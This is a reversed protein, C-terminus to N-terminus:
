DFEAFSRLLRGAPLRPSPALASGTRKPAEWNLAQVPVGRNGQHRSLVQQWERVCVPIPGETSSRNVVCQGACSPAIIILAIRTSTAFLGRRIRSNTRAVM